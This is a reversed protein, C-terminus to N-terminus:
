SRKIVHLDGYLEIDCVDLACDICWNVLKIYRFPKSKDDLHFTQSAARVSLGECDVVEDIETWCAGSNSGFLKFDILHYYLDSSMRLTYATVSLEYAILDITIWNHGSGTSSTSVSRSVIHEDAGVYISGM